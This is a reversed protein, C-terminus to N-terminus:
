NWFLSQLLKQLLSSSLALSSLTQFKTFNLLFLFFLWANFLFLTFLFLLLHLLHHLLLLYIFTVTRGIPLRLLSLWIIWIVRVKRANISWASSRMGRWPNHSLVSIAKATYNYLSSKVTTPFLSIYTRVTRSNPTMRRGSSGFVVSNRVKGLLFLGLVFIRFSSCPIKSHCYNLGYRIIENEMM